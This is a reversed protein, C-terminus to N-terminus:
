SARASKGRLGERAGESEVGQANPPLDVHPESHVTYITHLHGALQLCCGGMIEIERSLFLFM